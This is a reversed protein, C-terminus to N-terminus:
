PLDSAGNAEANDATEDSILLGKFPISMESLQRSANGQNHGGLRVGTIKAVRKGTIRDLVTLSIYDATFLDQVKPLRGDAHPGHDVVRWGTLSGSVPEVATYGIEACSARGLVYADQTDYGQGYSISHFLGVIKDDVMVQCRGGHLVKPAAM